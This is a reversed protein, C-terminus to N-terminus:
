ERLFTLVCNAMEMEHALKADEIAGAFVFRAAVHNIWTMAPDINQIDIPTQLETLARLMAIRFLM